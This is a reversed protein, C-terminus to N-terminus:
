NALFNSAALTEIPEAFFAPSNDDLFRRLSPNTTMFDRNVAIFRGGNLIYVKEPLLKKNAREKFENLGGIYAQASGRYIADADLGKRITELAQRDDIAGNVKGIVKNNRLIFVGSGTLSDVRSNWRFGQSAQLVPALKGLDVKGEAIYVTAQAQFDQPTVFWPQRVEKVGLHAVELNVPGDLKVDCSRAIIPRKDGFFTLVKNDKPIKIGPALIFKRENPLQPDTKLSDKTALQSISIPIVQRRKENTGEWLAAADGQGQDKFAGLLPQWSEENMDKPPELVIPIAKSEANAFSEAIWLIGNEPPYALRPMILKALEGEEAFSPVPPVEAPPPAVPIPLPKAALVPAPKSPPAKKEPLAVNLSTDARSLLSLAAANARGELATAKGNLVLQIAGSAHAVAGESGGRGLELGLEAKENMLYVQKGARIKLGSVGGSALKGNRNGKRDYAAIAGHVLDLELEGSASDLPRIRIQTHPGLEIIRKNGFNLSVYSNDGTAINDNEFVYQNEETNSWLIDDETRYQIDGVQMELNALPKGSHGISPKQFFLSWVTLSMLPAWIAFFLARGRM